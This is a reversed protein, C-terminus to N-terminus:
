YFGRMVSDGTENSFDKKILSAFFQKLLVQDSSNEKLDLHQQYYIMLGQVIQKKVAEDKTKHYLTLMESVTDPHKNSLTLRDIFIGRKLAGLQEDNAFRVEAAIHQETEHTMPIDAIMEFEEASMNNLEDANFDNLSQTDNQKKSQGMNYYPFANFVNIPLMIRGPVTDYGASYFAWWVYTDCRWLGCKDIQGTVANGAGIAYASSLTYKPCRWRQHNAEVLAKYGNVSGDSVGYRSGWYKSRAKFDYLTNIQGVVPENLVEIVYDATKSMGEPSTMAATTIGVHGLRGLGKYALDRGVIEGPHIPKAHVVSVAFCSLVVGVVKFM